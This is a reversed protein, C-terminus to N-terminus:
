VDYCNYLGYIDNRSILRQISKRSDYVKSIYRKKEEPISLHFARHCNPCLSVINSVDDLSENFLNQFAMPILHHAEVFPAQWKASTFTKHSADIECTYNALMVRKLAVRPNRKYVSKSQIVQTAIESKDPLSNIKTESDQKLTDLKDLFDLDYEDKQGLSFWDKRELSGINLIDQDDIFMFWVQGGRPKFGARQSLYLRLENNNPKPFVLNLDIFKGTNYHRFPKSALVKNSGVNGVHINKIGFYSVVLDEEADTLTIQSDFYERDTVRSFSGKNTNFFVHHYNEFKM